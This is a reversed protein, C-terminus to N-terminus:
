MLFIFSLLGEPAFSYSVSASISPSPPTLASLDCSVMEWTQYALATCDCCPVGCDNDGGCGSVDVPVSRSTLDSGLRLFRLLEAYRTPPDMDSPSSWEAEGALRGYLVRGIPLLLALGLFDSLDNPAELGPLVSFTGGSGTRGKSWFWWREGVGFAPGSDARTCSLGIDLLSTLPIVPGGAAAGVGAPPNVATLVLKVASLVGGGGGGGGARSGDLPAERADDSSEFIVEGARFRASGRAYVLGYSVAACLM